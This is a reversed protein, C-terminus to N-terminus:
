RLAEFHWRSCLDDECWRQYGAPVQDVVVAGAARKLWDGNFFASDGFVSSVRAIAYSTRAVFRTTSRFDPEAKAKRYLKRQLTRIL